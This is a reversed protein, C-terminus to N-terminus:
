FFDCFTCARSGGQKRSGWSPWQSLNRLCHIYKKERLHSCQTPSAFLYVFILWGPAEEPCRIQGTVRPEFIAGNIVSRFKTWSNAHTLLWLLIQNSIHEMEQKNYILNSLLLHSESINRLFVHQSCWVTRWSATPDWWGALNSAVKRSSVAVSLWGNVLTPWTM